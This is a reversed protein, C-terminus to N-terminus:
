EWRLDSMAIGLRRIDRSPELDSYSAYDFAPRFTPEVEFGLTLSEASPPGLEIDIQQWTNLARGRWEERGDVRVVVEVERAGAKPHHDTIDFRLREGAWPLRLMARGETWRLTRGRREEETQHFGYMENNSSEPPEVNLWRWPALILAALCLAQALRRSGGQPAGALVLSAAGVLLWTLFEVTKLYLLDEVLGYVIFGVLSITLARGLGEYRSARTASADRLGRLLAWGLAVLALLGLLGREALTQLYLGHSSGLDRGSHHSESHDVADYATDLSGLGWGLLPREKSLEVAGGWVPRGSVGSALSAVRETVAATLDPRLYTLAGAGALLVLVLALALRRWRGHRTSSRSLVMALAVAQALVALWAGRQQTFLVTLVSLGILGLGVLRSTRGGLLLTAAAFPVVLVVYEALWASHFFLSHLRLDDLPDGVIRYSDLDFLGGFEGLGLLVVLGLGAAMGLGLPRLSRGAFVRRVAFFLGIGLLLNALARWSYLPLGSHTGPLVSLLGALANGTWAPPHYVFPVMSALSVAVWAAVPWELGSHRWDTEGPYRRRVARVSTLIVAIAAADLAALYPGGPPSGFLPLAAAFAALGLRPRWTGLGAVFVPVIWILSEFSM